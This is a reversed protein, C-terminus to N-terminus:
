AEAGKVQTANNGGLFTITNGDADVSFGGGWAGGGSGNSATHQIPTEDHTHTCKGGTGGSGAGTPSGNGGAGGPSSGGPGSSGVGSGGAGGQDGQGGGGGAGGATCDTHVQTISANGGNGGGFINGNTNDIIIAQDVKVATGGGSGSGNSANGGKGGKGRIDGNNVLKLVSGAPFGDFDTSAIGASTSGIFVGSNVTVTVKVAGSPSGASTFVDYNDTDASITLKIGGAALEGPPLLGAM